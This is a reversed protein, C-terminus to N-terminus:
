LGSVSILHGIGTRNFVAWDSQDIARQDGVVLAVIVGAYPKGDLAHLIRSRLTARCHEVINGFGPVFSSLMRNGAADGRVYGTARVGQELLWVEYDFGYPNANGHPRQLRVTLQWREGPQVDPPPAGQGRFGAYWALSVRPPVRTPAGVVKEVAFNFRVGDEFRYPLSDITGIIVIDRGEDIAALTPKLAAQAVLAAWCFGCLAGCACASMARIRTVTFALLALLLAGGALLGLTSQSPLISQTQLVAAGAVFGFIACRM